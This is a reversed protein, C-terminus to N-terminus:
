NYPNLISTEKGNHVGLFLPPDIESPKKQMM